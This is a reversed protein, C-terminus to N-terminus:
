KKTSYLIYTHTCIVLSDSFLSARASVNMTQIESSKNELKSSCRSGYRHTKTAKRPVDFCSYPHLKLHRWRSKTECVKWNM